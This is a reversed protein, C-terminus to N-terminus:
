AQTGKFPGLCSIKPKPNKVYILGIHVPSKPVLGFFYKHLWNRGSCFIIQNEQVIHAKPNSEGRFLYVHMNAFVTGIFSYTSNPSQIKREMYIIKKRSQTLFLIALVIVTDGAM